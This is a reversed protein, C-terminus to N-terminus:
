QAQFVVNTATALSDFRPDGTVKARRESWIFNRGADVKYAARGQADTREGSAHESKSVKVGEVPKGEFLVQVTITDGAKPATTSLPVIEYQVGLPKAVQPTWRVVYKATKRAWVGSVAGPAENM